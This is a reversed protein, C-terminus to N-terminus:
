GILPKASHVMKKYWGKRPGPDSITTKNPRVCMTTTPVICATVTKYM